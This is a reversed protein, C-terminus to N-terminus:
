ASVLGAILVIPRLALSKRTSRSAALAGDIGPCTPIVETALMSAM